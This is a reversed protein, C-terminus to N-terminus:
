NNVLIPVQKKSNYSSIIMNMHRWHMLAMGKRDNAATLCTKQTFYEEVGWCRNLHDAWIEYLVCCNLQFYKKTLQLGTRCVPYSFERLNKV